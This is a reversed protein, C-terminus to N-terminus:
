MRISCHARHPTGACDHSYVHATRTDLCHALACMGEIQPSTTGSFVAKTRTRHVQIFATNEPVLDGGISPLHANYRVTRIGSGRMYIDVITRARRM